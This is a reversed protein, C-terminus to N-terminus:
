VLSKENHLFIGPVLQAVGILACTQLYEFVTGDEKEQLEVVSSREWLETCINWVKTAKRM